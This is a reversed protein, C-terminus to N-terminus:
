ANDPNAGVGSASSSSPGAKGWADALIQKVDSDVSKIKNEANPFLYEMLYPRLDVVWLDDLTQPTHSKMFHSQGIKYDARDIGKNVAEYLRIIEDKLGSPHNNLWCELVEKDPSMEIFSFRRRLAFDVLAISRDATNMTGILYVNRPISFKVKPRYTLRAERERYELLFLLEGFIRAVNGRNIEDIVLVFRKDGAARAADCVRKFVGDVVNYDLERAKKGDAGSVEITQARIGEIFDEYAYSPHFQVLEVRRRSEAFWEAFELAVFTKGTGPPGHLVVQKKSELARRIRLLAAEKLCTRTVLDSWTFPEEADITEDVAAEADLAATAAAIPESGTTMLVFVPWLKTFDALVHALLGAADDLLPDGAPHFCRLRPFDENTWDQLGQDTAVSYTNQEHPKVPGGTFEHKGDMAGAAELVGRMKAPQTAALERFQRKMPRVPEGEGFYLGHHMGAPSLSVDIQVDDQKRGQKRRWFAAWYHERYIGKSTNQRNIQSITEPAKARIELDPELRLLHPGLAELYCRLPDQVTTKFRDKNAHMWETTNNDALEQLFLFAGEPFGKFCGPDIEPVLPKSQAAPADEITALGEREILYQVRDLSWPWISNMNTRPDGGVEDFSAPHSLPLYRDFLAWRGEGTGDERVEGVRAVAFIKEAVSGGPVGTRCIVLADGAKVQKANPLSSGYHYGYGEVNRWKSKAESWNILWPRTATSQVAAGIARVSADPWGSAFRKTVVSDSSVVTVVRWEAGTAAAALAISKFRGEKVLDAAEEATRELDGGTVVAVVVNDGARPIARVKLNEPKSVEHARVQEKPLGLLQAVYEALELMRNGAEKPKALVKATLVSFQDAM